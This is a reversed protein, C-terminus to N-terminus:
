LIAIALLCTALRISIRWTPTVIFDHALLSSSSQKMLATGFFNFHFFRFISSGTEGPAFDNWKLSVAPSDTSALWHPSDTRQTLAAGPECQVSFLGPTGPLYWGTVAGDGQPAVTNHLHWGVGGGWGAFLGESKGCMKVAVRSRETLSHLDGLWWCAPTQGWSCIHSENRLPFCLLASRQSEKMQPDCSLLWLPPKLPCSPHTNIQRTFKKLYDVLNKKPSFFFFFDGM